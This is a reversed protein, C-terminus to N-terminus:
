YCCYNIQQVCFFTTWSKKKHYFFFLQSNSIYLYVPLSVFQYLGESTHVGRTPGVEGLGHPAQAQTSVGGLPWKPNTAFLAGPQLDAPLLNLALLPRLPLPGGPLTRLCSETPWVSFQSLKVKPASSEASRESHTLWGPGPEESVSNHSYRYYLHSHQPDSSEPSLDEEFSSTLPRREGLLTLVSINTVSDAAMTPLM